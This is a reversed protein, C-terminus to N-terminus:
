PRARISRQHAPAPTQAPVRPPSMEGSRVLADVLVANGKKVILAIHRKTITVCTSNRYGCGCARSCALEVLDDASADVRRVCERRVSSHVPRGALRWVYIERCLEASLSLRGWSMGGAFANELTRAVTVIDDVGREVNSVRGERTGRSAHAGDATFRYVSSTGVSAGEDVHAAWRQVAARTSSWRPGRRSGDDDVRSRALVGRSVHDLVHTGRVMPVPPPAEWHDLEETAHSLLLLRYDTRRSLRQCTRCTAEVALRVLEHAPVSAGCVAAHEDLGHGQQRPRELHRARRSM